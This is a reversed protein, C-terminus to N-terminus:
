DCRPTLLCANGDHNRFGARHMRCPFAYPDHSCRLTTGVYGQEILQRLETDVMFSDKLRAGVLAAHCRGHARWGRRCAGGTPWEDLGPLHPTRNPDIEDGPWAGYLNLSMGSTTIRKCRLWAWEKLTGDKELMFIAAIKELLKGEM